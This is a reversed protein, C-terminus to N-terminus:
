GATANVLTISYAPLRVHGGTVSGPTLSHAVTQQATPTGSTSQDHAGNPIGAAVPVTTANGTLNVLLETVGSPGTFTQGTIAAGGQPLTPAKPIVVATSSKAGRAAADIMEIAQGGPSLKPEAPDIWAGFANGNLATWNDAMALHPIRPLMLAFEALYLERAYSTQVPNKKGHHKRPQYPGRFNYETLWVPKGGLSSVATNLTHLETYAEHFLPGLDTATFPDYVAGPYDHLIVADPAGRGKATALLQSNWYRQRKTFPHLCGDAAVKVGHFDNHLAKVYIAVTKGYANGSPFATAFRGGGYLENGIEVYKIPLGLGAAKRLMALQNAPDLRNPKALVNLDFVPIAGTAKHVAALDELTFSFNRADRTPKGTRWNFYDAGTGGPWRVTAPKLRSMLPDVNTTTRAFQAAGLYDYNVGFLPSTPGSSAVTGLDASSMAETMASTRAAVPSRGAGAVVVGAVLGGAAGVAAVSL